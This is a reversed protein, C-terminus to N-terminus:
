ANLIDKHHRAMLIVGMALCVMGICLVYTPNTYNPTYTPYFGARMIGAIHLVPNYWLFSQVPGPLDEYMFFVGSILFLPRTLISWVQMWVPFLGIIVCNLMGVGLGLVAACAVATLIPGAMLVSQNETFFLLISFVIIMVLLDTLMNLIFRALVADVWTVAPYFLLARSYNISRAVTNSISQYLNFPLVATAFFLIFSSGLPPTRVVVSMATALIIIGGLPELLAWLYGGPSRGYVTAMERLMLAVVVRMTAFSRKRGHQINAVPPRTNGTPQDSM